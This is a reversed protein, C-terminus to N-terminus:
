VWLGVLCDAKTPVYQLKTLYKYYGYIYINLKGIYVTQRGNNPLKTDLFQIYLLESIFILSLLIFRLKFERGMFFTFIKM